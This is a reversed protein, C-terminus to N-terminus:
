KKKGRSHPAIVEVTTSTENGADDKATLLITYTRGDGKGSREARLQLDVTGNAADILLRQFLSFLLHGPHEEASWGIGPASALLDAATGLAGLVLYLFGRQRDCEGPCTELAAAARRALVTESETSGLWQRLTLGSSRM